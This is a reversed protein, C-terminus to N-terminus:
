VGGTWFFHEDLFAAKKECSLCVETIYGSFIFLNGDLKTDNQKGQAKSGWQM